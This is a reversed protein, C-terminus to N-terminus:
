ISEELKTLVLQQQHKIDQQYYSVKEDIVHKVYYLYVSICFECAAIM